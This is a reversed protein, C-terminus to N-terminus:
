LRHLAHLMSFRISKTHYKYLGFVLHNAALQVLTTPHALGDLTSALGLVEGTGVLRHILERGEENLSSSKAEGSVPVVLGASPSGARWFVHGKPYDASKGLVMFRVVADDSATRLFDVSHLTDLLLAM